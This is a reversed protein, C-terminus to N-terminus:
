FTYQPELIVDNETNFEMKVILMLVTSINM